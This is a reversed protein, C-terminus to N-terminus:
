QDFNLFSNYDRVDSHQRLQRSWTSDLRDFMKESKYQKAREGRVSGECDVRRRGEGMGGRGVTKMQKGEETGYARRESRAITEVSDIAM